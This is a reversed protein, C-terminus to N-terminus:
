GTGGQPTGQNPVSGSPLGPLTPLIRARKGGGGGGSISGPYNMGRWDETLFGHDSVQNSKFFLYIVLAALMLAAIAVIAYDDIKVEM